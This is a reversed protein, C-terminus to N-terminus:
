IAGGARKKIAFIQNLYPRVIVYFVYQHLSFLSTESCNAACFIFSQVAKNGHLHLFCCKTHLHARFQNIIKILQHMKM